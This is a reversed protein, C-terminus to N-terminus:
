RITEHFLKTRDINIEISVVTPDDEARDVRSGLGWGSM